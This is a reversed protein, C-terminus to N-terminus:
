IWSLTQYEIKKTVDKDFECWTKANKCLILQFDIEERNELIKYLIPLIKKKFVESFNDYVHYPGPTTM